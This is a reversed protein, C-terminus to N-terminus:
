LDTPKRRALAFSVTRWVVGALVVGGLAMGSAAEPSLASGDEEEPLEAEEMKVEVDPKELAAPSILVGRKKAAGSENAADGGGEGDGNPDENEGAKDSPDPNSNSGPNSAGSGTNDPNSSSDPNADPNSGSSGPNRNGSGDPEDSDGSPATSEPLSYDGADENPDEDEGDVSGQQGGSDGPEDVGSNDDAPDNGGQDSPTDAGPDDGPDGGPDSPVPDPNSAQEIAALIEDSTQFIVQRTMWTGSEVSRGGNYSAFTIPSNLAAVAMTYVRESEPESRMYASSETVIGEDDVEALSAAEEATGMYLRSYASSIYFVATAAGGEVVLLSKESAPNGSPSGGADAGSKSSFFRCMRSTTVTPIEYVGDPIESVSLVDGNTQFNGGNAPYNEASAEPTRTDAYTAYAKDSMCVAALLLAVLAIAIACAPLRWRFGVRM